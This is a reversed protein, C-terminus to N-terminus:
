CSVRTQYGELSKTILLLGVLFVCLNNHIYNRFYYLFFYLVSCVATWHKPRDEKIHKSSKLCLWLDQSCGRSFFLYAQNERGGTFHQLTRESSTGRADSQIELLCLLQQLMCLGVICCCYLVNNVHVCSDNWIAHNTLISFGVM